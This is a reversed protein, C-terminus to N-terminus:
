ACAPKALPSESIPKRGELIVPQLEPANIPERTAAPIGISVMVSKIKFKFFFSKQSPFRTVFKTFGM